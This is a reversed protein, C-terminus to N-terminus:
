IEEIAVDFKEKPAKYGCSLCLTIGDSFTKISRHGYKPCLIINPNGKQRIIWKKAVLRLIRQVSIQFKWEMTVLSYGELYMDCIEAEEDKRLKRIKRTRIEGKNLIHYVQGRTLGSESAIKRVTAGGLYDTCILLDRHDMSKNRHSERILCSRCLIKIDGECKAPHKLHSVDLKRDGSGCIQCERYKLSALRRLIDVSEDGGKRVYDFYEDLSMDRFKSYRIGRLRRPISEREMWQRVRERTVRFRRGMAALSMKEEYYLRRLEADPVRSALHALKTYLEWDTKVSPM